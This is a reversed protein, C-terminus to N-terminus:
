CLVVSASCCASVKPADRGGARGVGLGFGLGLGLGAVVVVLVASAAVVYIRGKRRSTGNEQWSVLMCKSRTGLKHPSANAIVATVEEENATLRVEESSSSKSAGKM